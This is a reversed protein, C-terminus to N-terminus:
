IVLQLVLDDYVSPNHIQAFLIVSLIPFIKILSILSLGQKLSDM